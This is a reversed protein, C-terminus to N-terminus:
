GQKGSVLFDIIAIAFTGGGDSGSNDMIANLNGTISNSQEDFSFELTGGVSKHATPNEPDSYNVYDVFINKNMRALQHEGGELNAPIYISIQKYTLDSARHHVRVVLRDGIPDPHPEMLLNFYNAKYVIGDVTGEFRSEQNNRVRPSFVRQATATM